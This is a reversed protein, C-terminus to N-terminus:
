PKEQATVVQVIFAVLEELSEFHTAQHSVLHEVRGKFHGQEVQADAHLQVVFARRTPLSPQNKNMRGSYRSDFAACSAHVMYYCPCLLTRRPESIPGCNLSDNLNENLNDEPLLSYYSCFLSSYRDLGSDNHQTYIRTHSRESSLFVPTLMDPYIPPM